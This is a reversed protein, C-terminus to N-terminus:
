NSFDCFLAVRGKTFDFGTSAGAENTRALKANGKAVAKGLVKKVRAPAETFELAWGFIGNEKGFYFVVRALKLGRFTGDLPVTVRMHDGADISTAVGISPAVDPPPRVAPAAATGAVFEAALGSRWDAFAQTVECASDMGSLFADFAPAARVPAVVALSLVAVTPLLAFLASRHSM